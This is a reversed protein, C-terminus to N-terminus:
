RPEDLPGEPRAIEGLDRLHTEVRELGDRVGSMYLMNEHPGPQIKTSRIESMIWELVESRYAPLRVLMRIGEIREQADEVEKKAEETSFYRRWLSM